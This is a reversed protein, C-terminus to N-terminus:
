SIISRTFTHTFSTKHRKKKMKTKCDNYYYTLTNYTMRHIDKEQLLITFNFFCIIAFPCMADNEATM